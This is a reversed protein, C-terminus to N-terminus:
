GASQFSKRTRIVVKSFMSVTRHSLAPWIRWPVPYGQLVPWACNLACTSSWGVRTTAPYATPTGRLRRRCCRLAKASSNYPFEVFNEGNPSLEVTESGVLSGDVRLEVRAENQMPQGACAVEVRVVSERLTLAIAPEVLIDTVAVNANSDSEAVNLLTVSAKEGISDLLQREADNPTWTTRGLDTCFVVEHTVLQPLESRAREIAALVARAAAGIEASEDSLTLGDLGALAISRDFSPRGLLNEAEAAWGIVTLTTGESEQIASRALQQAREWRSADGHRCGMSYSRDVVIIRHTRAGNSAGFSWQRFTPEAAAIAVLLLIATRVALLLWQQMQIKRARQQMAKLLLEVAAWPMTHHRSRFLRHVLWPLAAAALWVLMPLNLLELAAITLQGFLM